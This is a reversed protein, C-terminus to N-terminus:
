YVWVIEDDKDPDIDIHIFTRHVGIRTVPLGSLQFIALLLFFRERSGNVQLDVALGKIHSSNKSGKVYTNHYECRCASNLILPQGLSGRISNLILLLDPSFNNKDCGCHCRLEKPSFYNKLFNPM